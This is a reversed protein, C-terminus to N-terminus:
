VVLHRSRVIVGPNFTGTKDFASKLRAMLARELPGRLQDARAAKACGVGHEASLNGGMETALRGLGLAFTEELGFFGKQGIPPSMNYNVNGDGLNGFLIIWIGGPLSKCDM